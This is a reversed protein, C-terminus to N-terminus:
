PNQGVAVFEISRKERNNGAFRLEHIRLLAKEELDRPLRQLVGAVHRVRIRSEDSRKAPKVRVGKRRTNERPPLIQHLPVALEVGSQQILLIEDGGSGGVLEPERTGRQADM